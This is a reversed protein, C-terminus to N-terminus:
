RQVTVWREGERREVVINVGREAHTERLQAAFALAAEVTAFEDIRWFRQNGWRVRAEALTM